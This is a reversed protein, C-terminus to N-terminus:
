RVRLDGLLRWLRKPSGPLRGSAEWPSRRSARMSGRDDLRRSRREEAARSPAVGGPLLKWTPVASGKPPGGNETGGDEVGERRGDEANGEGM